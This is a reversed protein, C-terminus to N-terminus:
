TSLDEHGGEKFRQAGVPLIHPLDRRIVQWEALEEHAEETVTCQSRVRHTHMRNRLEDTLVWAAKLIVIVLLSVAVPVHVLSVTSSSHPVRCRSCARTFYHRPSAARGLYDILCPLDRCGSAIM